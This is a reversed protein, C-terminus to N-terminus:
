GKPRRSGTFTEADAVLARTLELVHWINHTVAREPDSVEQLLTVLEHSLDAYLEAPQAAPIEIIIRDNTVRVPM